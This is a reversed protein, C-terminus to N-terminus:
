NRDGLLIDASFSKMILGAPFPVPGVTEALPSGSTCPTSLPLGAGTVAADPVCGWLNGSTAGQPQTTGDVTMKGFRIAGDAAIAPAIRFSGDWRIRVAANWPDTAPTTV